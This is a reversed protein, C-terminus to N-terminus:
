SLFNFVFPYSLESIIKILEVESFMNELHTLNHYYRRKESYKEEIELWRNEILIEDQSFQLCLQVFKEKLSM